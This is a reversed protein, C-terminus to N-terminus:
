KRFTKLYSASLIPHIKFFATVVHWRPLDSLIQAFLINASGFSDRLPSLNYGLALFTARHWKEQGPFVDGGGMVGGTLPNQWQCVRECSFPNILGQTSVFNKKWMNILCYLFSCKWSPVGIWRDRTKFLDAM